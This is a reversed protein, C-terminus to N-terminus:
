LIIHKIVKLTALLYPSTVTAKCNTEIINEFCFFKFLNKTLIPNMENLKLLRSLPQQLNSRKRRASKLFRQWFLFRSHIDHNIYTWRPLQNTSRLIVSPWCFVFFDIISLLSLQISPFLHRFIAISNANHQSVSILPFNTFFLRIGEPSM